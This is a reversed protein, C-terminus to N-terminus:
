LPEKTLVSAFHVDYEYANAIINAVEMPLNHNNAWGEAVVNKAHEVAKDSDMHYEFVAVQKNEGEADPLDCVVVTVSGKSRYMTIGKHLHYTCCVGGFM